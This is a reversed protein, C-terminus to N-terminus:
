FDREITFIHTGFKWEEYWYCNAVRVYGIGKLDAIVNQAERESHVVKYGDPNFDKNMIVEMNKIIDVNYMVGFSFDLVKTM